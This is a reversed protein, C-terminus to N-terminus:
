VKKNMIIPTLEKKIAEYEESSMLELELLDKSEKLKAIAEERSLNSSAIEGNALCNEIQIHYSTIGMQTKCIAMVSYGKRKSGYVKFKKIIADWGIASSHAFEAIFVGDTDVINRFYENTSSPEGIKISNGVIFEEGNKAKYATYIGKPKSTVNSLEDYTIIQAISLNSTLGVIIILLVNLLKKM